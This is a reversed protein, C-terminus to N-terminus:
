VRGHRAEELLRRAARRSRLTLVPVQPFNALVAEARAGDKQPFEWVWRLFAPDFREPCGAGMDPRVKGYTTAVRKLVGWACVPRSYQFRVVGDARALRLPLTRHFNGDMIWADKELEAALLADFEERPRAVWGPTWYLKDLHVVPLALAEGLARALTSKGSGSSGIILLRRKGQLFGADM